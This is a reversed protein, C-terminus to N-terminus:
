FISVRVGNSRQGGTSVAVEAIGTAEFPVFCVILKEQVSILPAPIGDFTVLTDGLIFPLRGTPDLKAQLTDAPGLKRGTIHVLQGPAVAGNGFRLVQAPPFTVASDVSDIIIPPDTRPDIRTITMAGNNSGAIYVSGAPGIAMPSGDSRSSFLLKSADPSLESVFSFGNVAFPSVLPFDSSNASGSVWINGSADLAIAAGSEECGGGLYTLFRASSLTPDLKLVYADTSGTYPVGPGINIIIGCRDVFKPQFVGPTAGPAIGQTTGTVYTNGAADLTLATGTTTYSGGVFTSATIKDGAPSLKTVFGANLINPPAPQDAPGPFASQYANATAPFDPSTTFGTVVAEGAPTVAIGQTVSGCAGTLLTSYVVTSGDASLKAVFSNTGQNPNIFPSTSTRACPTSPVRPQVATATTPFDSASTIGTVYVSGISDLAVARISSVKSGGLLRSFLLRTGDASLKAVFGAGNGLSPSTSPTVTVPFDASQTGGVVVANGQADVALSAISDGFSSGGFFTSYLVRTGTPDLKIIFPLAPIQQGAYVTGAVTTLFQTFLLGPLPKLTAGGDTSVFTVTPTTVYLAGSADVAIARPVNGNAVPPSNLPIVNAFTVGGDTSKLVGSGNLVYLNSPNSPDVVLSMVGAFSALPQWTAGADTTKLLRGSTNVAFITNGDPLFAAIVPSIPFQPPDPAGPYTLNLQRWTNGADTSKYLGNAQLVSVPATVAYAILHDNPNIFIQSVAVFQNASVPLGIDRTFWGQGADGSSFLGRGTAAFVNSPTISDIAFSNVPVNEPLPAVARWSAGSDISLYIGGTSNSAYLIKGDPTGGIAGINSAGDVRIPSIQGGNSLAFLPPQSLPKFANTSTPFDPSNAIGAAYLNGQADTTLTTITGKGDLPLISSVVPDITLPARKDHPGLRISVQTAGHLEYRGLVERGRQYVRPLSQRLTGIELDGRADIHIQQVGEWHLRIRDVRAGSALKLDYELKGADEYFIADIGPYLGRIAVRAYQSFTRRTGASIYTAPSADGLPEVRASPRAGDFRLTM